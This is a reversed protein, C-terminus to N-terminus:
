GMMLETKLNHQIGKNMASEQIIESFSSYPNRYHCLLVKIETPAWRIHTERLKHGTM